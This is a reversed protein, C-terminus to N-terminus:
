STVGNQVKPKLVNSTMISRPGRGVSMSGENKADIQVDEARELTLLTTSPAWKTGLRFEQYNGILRWPRTNSFPFASEYIPEFIRHKPVPNLSIKMLSSKGSGPQGCLYLTQRRDPFADLYMMNAFAGVLYKAGKFFIEHKDRWEASWILARYLSAEGEPFTRPM